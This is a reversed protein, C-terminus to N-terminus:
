KEFLKNIESRKIITRGGIKTSKIKGTKLLRYLTRESIGILKYAEKLSLFEKQKIVEIAVESASLIKHKNTQEISKSIKKEKLAKKYARSNCKHSCYRTVTTKATFENGCYECIKQVEVNSSM